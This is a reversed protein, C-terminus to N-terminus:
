HLDPLIHRSLRLREHHAADNRGLHFVECIATPVAYSEEYMKGCEAPFSFRLFSSRLTFLHCRFSSFPCTRAPAPMCLEADLPPIPPHQVRLCPLAHLHLAQPARRQRRPKQKQQRLRAHEQPQRRKRQRQERRAQLRANVRRRQQGAARQPRQAKGNRLRIQEQDRAAGDYQQAVSSKSLRSARSPSPASHASSAPTPVSRGPSAAARM